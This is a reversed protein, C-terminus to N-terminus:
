RYDGRIWRLVKEGFASVRAGDDTVYDWGHGGPMAVFQKTTAPSAAFAARMPAEDQDGPSMALLLPVRTAAAAEAIPAFEGGAGDTSGSLDVVANAGLPQAAALAIGGGKSAGVLVVRDAGTSRAWGVVVRTQAVPDGALHASCTSEGDRCRNWLIARVGQGAVWAAYEAWGCMGIDDTQALFVAVTPGSGLVM